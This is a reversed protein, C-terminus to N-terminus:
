RFGNALNRGSEQKTIKGEGEEKKDKKKKV